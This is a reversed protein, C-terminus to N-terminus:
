VTSSICLLVAAAPITASARLTAAALRKSFGKDWRKNSKSNVDVKEVCVAWLPIFKGGSLSLQRAQFIENKALQTWDRPYTTIEFHEFFNTPLYNKM